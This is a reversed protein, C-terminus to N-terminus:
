VTTWGNYTVYADDGDIIIKELDFKKTEKEASHGETIMRCASVHLCEAADPYKLQVYM